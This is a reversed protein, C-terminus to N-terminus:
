FPWLVGVSSIAHSYRTLTTHVVELTHMRPRGKARFHKPLKALLQLLCHVADSHKCAATVGETAVDMCLCPLGGATCFAQVKQCISKYLWGAM